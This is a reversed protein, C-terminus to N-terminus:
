SRAFFAFSPDFSNEEHRTTILIEQAQTLTHNVRCKKLSFIRTDNRKERAAKKARSYRAAMPLGASPLENKFWSESPSKRLIKQRFEAWSSEM